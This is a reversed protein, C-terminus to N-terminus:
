SLSRRRKFLAASIQERLLATDPLATEVPVVTDNVPLVDEDPLVIILPVDAMYPNSRVDVLFEYALPLRMDVVVLSLPLREICSLAAETDAATEVTYGARSLWKELRARKDANASAVLLPEASTGPLLMRATELLTERGVPTTLFRATGLPFSPLTYHLSSRVLLATDVTAPEAKLAQILRWGNTEPMAVDIVLVDPSLRRALPLAQAGYSIGVMQYQDSDLADRLRQIAFGSDVVLVKPREDQQVAPLTMDGESNAIAPLLLTFTSGNGPESEVWLYGHHLQALRRSIALGLGTGSYERVTSGDAQRFSEFIIAQDEPQIGIGTDTVAIALWSGDPVQVGEPLPPADLVENWRVTVPYLRLRITGNATFKIANDILNEIIQQLYHLDVEVLPEDEVADVTMALGKAQAHPMADNVCGQAVVSARLRVPAVTVQGSEIRSLDLVDNILSLLHRASGNVRQMRDRQQENLEGYFNDLLMETYGIIANLPTRLEHSVNALFESKVVSAQLAQWYLDANSLAMAVQGAATMLTAREEESFARKRVFQSVAVAGLVRDRAVLPAFLTSQIGLRQLIERTPEDLDSMEVDDVAIATGYEALREMTENAQLPLRLGRNGMHPYEAALLATDASEDIMMIGCHDVEFLETLLQTATSLVEDRDLSSAIVSMIRHISTLRRTRQEQTRLSAQTQARLRANDLAVAALRAIAFAASADQESYLGVAFRGLAIVGITRDHAVLPLAMWSRITDADPLSIRANWDPSAQADALVLPQQSVFTQALPHRETLTLAIRRPMLDPEHSRFLSLHLGDPETDPTPILISASDYGVLRRLQELIQEMAEDAERVSNVTKSADLLANLVARRDRETEALRGNELALSLQGALTTLLLLDHDSFSHAVRHQISILGIVDNQRNRLPVGIWSAALMGPEREDPVITLAALREQEADVDQFYFELGHTVVARSFGTLPIPERDVRIGDESVLPLSLVDTTVDYLGVFFSTTDFLMNLHEHLGDWLAAADPNSSLLRGIENLETLGASENGRQQEFAARWQREAALFHLQATLVDGLLAAVESPFADAAHDGQVVLLGYERQEDALPMLLAPGTVPLADDTEGPELVRPDGWDSLSRLWAEVDPMPTSAFVDFRGPQGLAVLAASFRDALGNVLARAADAPTM